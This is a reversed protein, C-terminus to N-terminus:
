RLTIAGPQVEYILDGREMIKRVFEPEDDQTYLDVPHDLAAELERRLRWYDAAQVSIALVDIDSHTKATGAAVSGFLYARRVGSARLVPVGREMLLTRLGQSRLVREARQRRWRAELKSFGSFGM